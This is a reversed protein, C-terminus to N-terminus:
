ILSFYKKIRGCDLMNESETKLIKKILKCCIIKFCITQKIQHDEVKVKQNIEIPPDFPIKQSIIDNRM